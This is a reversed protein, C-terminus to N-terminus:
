QKVPSSDHGQLMLVVVETTLGPEGLPGLTNGSTGVTFKNSSSNSQTLTGSFRTNGLVSLNRNLTTKYKVSLIGNLPTNGYIDVYAAIDINYLLNLVKPTHSPM